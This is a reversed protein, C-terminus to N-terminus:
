YRATLPVQWHYAAQGSFRDFDITLIQSGCVATVTLSLPASVMM